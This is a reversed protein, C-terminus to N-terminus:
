TTSRKDPQKRMAKIKNFFSSSTEPKREEQQIAFETMKESIRNEIEIKINALIEPQETSGEVLLINHGQAIQRATENLQPIAIFIPIDVKVESTKYIYLILPSAQVDTESTAHDLAIIIEQGNIQKRAILSFHHQMGSKQGITYGPMEVKFRLDTLLARIDELSAVNQRIEKKRQVNLSFKPIEKVVSEKITFSRNCNHCILDFEPNEFRDGCKQCIYWRGMNRYSGETLLDGCQPCRNNIYKDKQDIHGCPIHETLNTKNVNHSKCKPCRSHFTLIISGCNPCASVSDYFSKHLIDLRDLNLLLDISITNVEDKDIADTIEYIFGLGSSYKPTIQTEDGLQLLNTLIGRTKPEIYAERRQLEITDELNINKLPEDKKGLLAQAISSKRDQAEISIKAQDNNRKM